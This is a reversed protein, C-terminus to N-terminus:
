ASPLSAPAIPLETPKKFNQGDPVDRYWGEADEQWGWKRREASEPPCVVADPDVDWDVLINGERIRM